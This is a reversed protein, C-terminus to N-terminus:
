PQLEEEIATFRKEAEVRSPHCGSLPLQGPGRAVCPLGAEAHCTPCPVRRIRRGRLPAPSKGLKGAAQMCAIYGPGPEARPGRELQLQQQDSRDRRFIRAADIIDRPRPRIDGSHTSYVVTVAALLDARTLGTPTFCEAWMLVTADSPNPFRPDAAACKALVLRATDLYDDTMTGAGTPHTTPWRRALGSSQRRSQGNPRGNTPPPIREAAASGARWTANWDRKRADKTTSHWYDRFKKLELEHDLHPQEDRMQAAVEPAPSWDAPLYTGRARGVEKTEKTELDRTPLLHARQPM